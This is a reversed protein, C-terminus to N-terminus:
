APKQGVFIAWTQTFMLETGKVFPRLGTKPGGDLEKRMSEKIHDGVEKETKTLSLWQETNVEIERADQHVWELGAQILLSILRDKSLAATHSPDRLREFDNYSAALADDDPCVMDIIGVYGGSRCVRAMESVKLEPDLFHHVACRCVVLDFENNGYPIPEAMGPEFTINSLGAKEAERKGQELMEPTADLAVVWKVHPAIFRSLHGTGAAVDLVQSEKSLPLFSAMWELYDKSSLTLGPDNFAAAQKAFEKQIKEIHAM